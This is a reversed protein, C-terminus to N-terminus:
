CKLFPLKKEIFCYQQLKGQFGIGMFKLTFEVLEVSFMQFKKMQTYCALLTLERKMVCGFNVTM